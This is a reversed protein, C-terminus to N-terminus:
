RTSYRSTSCPLISRGMFKDPYDHYNQSTFVVDVPEPSSLQNAPQDLVSVNAYHPDAAFSTRAPWITRMRKRM